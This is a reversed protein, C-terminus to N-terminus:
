SGIGALIKFVYDQRERFAKLKTMSLSLSNIRNSFAVARGEVSSRGDTTGREVGIGGELMKKVRDLKSPPVVKGQSALKIAAETDAEEMETAARGIGVLETMFPRLQPPCEDLTLRKGVVGIVEGDPTISNTAVDLIAFAM